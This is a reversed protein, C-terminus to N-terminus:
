PKAGVSGTVDITGCQVCRVGRRFEPRHPCGSWRGEYPHQIPGSHVHVRDAIGSDRFGAFWWRYEGDHCLQLLAVELNDEIRDLVWYWGPELERGTWDKPKSM